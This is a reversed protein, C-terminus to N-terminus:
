GVLFIEKIQFCPGSLNGVPIVPITEHRGLPASIRDRLILLITSSESGWATHVNGGPSGSKESHQRSILDLNACAKGFCSRMLSTRLARLSRPM